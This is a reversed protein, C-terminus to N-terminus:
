VKIVIKGPYKQAMLAKFAEQAESWEFVKGILPEIQHKEMFEVLEQYMKLSAAM